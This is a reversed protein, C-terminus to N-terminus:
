SEEVKKMETEVHTPNKKFVDPNAITALLLGLVVGACFAVLLDLIQEQRM